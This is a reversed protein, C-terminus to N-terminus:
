LRGELEDRLSQQQLPTGAILIQVSGTLITGWNILVIGYQDAASYELDRLPLDDIHRHRTTYSRLQWRPIALKKAVLAAYSTSNFRPLCTVPLYDMGCADKIVAVDFAFIGRMGNSFLWRAMADVSFWANHAAPFRDGIHVSGSLLKETIALRELRAGTVQYQLNLFLSADLKQQLQLPTDAGFYALLRKLQRRSECRYIGAGAVPLAAKLYCPFRIQALLQNDIQSSSDFYLTQATRMGLQRALEIFHNRSSIFDVVRYWNENGAARHQDAGYYFYSSEYQSYHRLEEYKLNWIIQNTHALGIRDYHRSIAPFEEMLEPHLQIVDFPTTIGLARGSYLYDGKVGATGCHMIDHNLFQPHVPYFDEIPQTLAM